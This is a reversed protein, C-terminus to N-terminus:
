QYFRYTYYLTKGGFYGSFAGEISLELFAYQNALITNTAQLYGFIYKVFFFLLLIILTSYNGPLEISKLDKFIKIPAKLASLIGTGIGICLFSAYLAISFYNGSFFTQYKLGILIIPIIYLKPLYIIRNRTAKLGVLLLYIFIVWVWIPTGIIAKIVFEFLNQNM